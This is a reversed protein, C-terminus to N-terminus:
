RWYYITTYNGKTNGAFISAHYMGVADSFPYPNNTKIYGKLERLVGDNLYGQEDFLLKRIPHDPDARFPDFHDKFNGRHDFVDEFM